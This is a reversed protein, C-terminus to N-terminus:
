SVCLGDMKLLFGKALKVSEMVSKVKTTKEERQKEGPGFLSPSTGQEERTTEGFGM